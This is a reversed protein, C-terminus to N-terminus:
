KSFNELQIKENGNATVTVRFVLVRSRQQSLSLLGENVNASFECFFIDM